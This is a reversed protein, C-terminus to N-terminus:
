VNLGFVRVIFKGRPEVQRILRYNLHLYRWEGTEISGQPLKLVIFLPRDSRERLASFVHEELFLGMDNLSSIGSGLPGLEWPPDLQLISQNMIHSHALLFSKIDTGYAQASGQRTSMIRNFTAVNNRLREFREQEHGTSVIQIAHVNLIPFYYMAALTDGGVCAFADIFHSCRSGRTASVIMPYIVRADNPRTIYDTEEPSCQFPFGDRLSLQRPWEKLFTTYIKCAKGTMGGDAELRKLASIIYADLQALTPQLM